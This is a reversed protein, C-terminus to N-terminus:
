VPGKSIIISYLFEKIAEAYGGAINVVLAVNLRIFHRFGDTIVPPFILEYVRDVFAVPFNSLIFIVRQIFCGETEM